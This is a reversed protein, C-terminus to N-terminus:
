RCSYKEHEPPGPVKTARYACRNDRTAGVQKYDPRFPSWWSTLFKPDFGSSWLSEEIARRTFSFWNSTDGPNLEDHRYFQALAVRNLRKDIKSLPVFKGDPLVFSNDLYQTEILVYQNTIQWLRDLALLPHRLHYFVGFFFVIDFTGHLTPSLDYVSGQVYEVSSNLLQRAINFGCIDPPMVDYAVVRKAGRREAEFSFYGDWAGVDLVTLGELNRPIEVMSALQQLYTLGTRGPTVLDEEILISHWWEKSAILRQKESLDVPPREASPRASPPSPSQALQSVLNRNQSRLFDREQILKNIPPISKILSKLMTKM